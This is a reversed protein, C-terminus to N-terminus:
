LGSTCLVKNLIEEYKLNKLELEEIDSMIKKIAGYM